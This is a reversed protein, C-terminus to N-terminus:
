VFRIYKRAHRKLLKIQQRAAKDNEAAWAVYSKNYTTFVKLNKKLMLSMFSACGLEHEGERISFPCTSCCFADCLVCRQTIYFRDNVGKHARRLDFRARLAKEFRKPIEIQNM